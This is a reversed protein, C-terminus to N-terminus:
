LGGGPYEVAVPKAFIIIRQIRFREDIETTVLNLRIRQSQFNALRTPEIRTTAQMPIPVLNSTRTDDLDSLSMQLNGSGTIRLRVGVVHHENEENSSRKAM